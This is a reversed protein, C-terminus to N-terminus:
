STQTFYKSLAYGLIPVAVSAFTILCGKSTQCGTGNSQIFFPVEGRENKLEDYTNQGSESAASVIVSQREAESMMPDLLFTITLLLIKLRNPESFYLSACLISGLPPALIEPRPMLCDVLTSYILRLDQQDFGYNLASDRVAPQEWAEKVFQTVLDKGVEDFVSGNLKLHRSLKSNIRALNFVNFAM